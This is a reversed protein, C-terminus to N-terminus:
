LSPTAASLPQELAIAREFEQQCPLCREVAPSADLRAAPIPLDCDVCIGYTGQDLRLLASELQNIENLQREISALELDVVLHAVSAEEADHVEGAVDTFHETDSRIRDDEMDRRLEGLRTELRQRFTRLQEETLFEAM